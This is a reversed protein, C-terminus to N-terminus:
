TEQIFSTAYFEDGNLLLPTEGTGPDVSFPGGIVLGVGGALLDYLIDEPLSDPEEISLTDGTSLTLADGTSLEFDDLVTAGFLGNQLIQVKAPPVISYHVETAEYLEKIMAILVPATGGTNNAMAKLKLLSKYTNDSRGYRKMDVHIGCVDLQAGSGGDIWMGALMAYAADALEQFQKDPLKALSQVETDRFQEALYPPVNLESFDINEIEAM